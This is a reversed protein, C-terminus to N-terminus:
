RKGLPFTVAEGVLDLRAPTQTPSYVAWTVKDQYRYALVLERRGDGDLDLVALVDMGRWDRPDAPPLAAPFAFASECAADGVSVAGVEEAPARMGDTFQALEYADVAGDGDIDVLLKGKSACAGAPVFEPPDGEEEYPRADFGTGTELVAVAVGCGRLSALCAEDLTPEETGSRPRQCPPAGAYSGIAVSTALGLDTAGIPTFVGARRGDWALVAFVRAARRALPRVVDAPAASWSVRRVLLPLFGPRGAAAEPCLQGLLIERGPPVASVPPAAPALDTPEPGVPEPTPASACAAALAAPFVFTLRM